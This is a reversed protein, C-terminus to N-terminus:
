AADGKATGEPDAKPAGHVVQARKTMLDDLIARAQTIASDLHQLRAETSKAVRAKIVHAAIMNARGSAFDLAQQMLEAEPRM